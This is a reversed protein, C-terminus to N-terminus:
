QVLGVVAVQAFGRVWRDGVRTSGDFV